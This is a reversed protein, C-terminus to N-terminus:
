RRRRSFGILGLLGFAALALSAPEPIATIDAHFIMDGSQSSVSYNPFDQPKAGSYRQGGAYTDGSNRSQPIGAQWGNESGKVGVDFAYTTSAALAIPSDFTFTFYSPSSADPTYRVIEDVVATLTGPLADVTGFRLSWDKWGDITDAPPNQDADVILVTVANLNGATAGTTFTQGIVNRDSWLPSGGTDDVLNAIDGGDVTPATGSVTITGANATAALAFPAMAVAALSLLTKTHRMTLM